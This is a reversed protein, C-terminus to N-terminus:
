ARVVLWVGAITLLLGAARQLDFARDLVMAAILQAAVTIVLTKALGLRPAAYGIGGVIILGFVGASWGYWPIQRIGETPRGKMLWFLTAPIAGIGYTILISTATGVTRDMAGMVKGQVAVAIGALTAILILVLPTSM